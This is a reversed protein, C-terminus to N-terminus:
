PQDARYFPALPPGQVPMRFRSEHPPPRLEGVIRGRQGRDRAPADVGGGDVGAVTRIVQDSGPHRDSGASALSAKVADPRRTLRGAHPRSGRYKPSAPKVRRETRSNTGGPAM